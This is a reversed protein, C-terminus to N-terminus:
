DVNAATAGFVQAVPKAPANKAFGRSSARSKAELMDKRLQLEKAAAEKAQLNVHLLTLPRPIGYLADAHSKHTHARARTDTHTPPTRATDLPAWLGGPASASSPARVAM